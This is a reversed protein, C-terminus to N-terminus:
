RGRVWRSLEVAFPKPDDWRFVECRDDLRHDVITRLVAALGARQGAPLQLEEASRRLLAWMHDLEGLEWVSRIGARALDGSIIPHGLTSQVLASPFDLGADIALQVSGWLRANIEMLVHEGTAADRKFEIMAAGDYELADLLTECKAVLEPSPTVAERYTSVGGAPPKERLRRHGFALHTQRHHRLLFVGEGHGVIREQLMLPYAAAPYSAVLSDLAARGEAFRVTTSVLSGAVEVVSHAPKVVVWGEAFHPPIVASRELLTHQRPVRIGCTAARQLVGAKDSAALYAARSPGAIPAGVLGEAGLLAQCARDTVPVVIGVGHAAVAKAVEATYASSDSRGGPPLAVHWQAFKSAGALGRTEGVTGVRWGRRGFARVAALAARQEPDTVLINLMHRPLHVSRDVLLPM